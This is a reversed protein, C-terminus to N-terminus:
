EGLLKMLWSSLGIVEIYIVLLGLFATALSFLFIRASWMIKKYNLAICDDNREGILDPIRDFYLENLFPKFGAVTGGSGYFRTPKASLAALIASIIFFTLAIMELRTAGDAEMSQIILAVVVILVACFAVGRQDAAIALTQQSELQRESQRIAERKADDLIYNMNSGLTTLLSHCSFVLM